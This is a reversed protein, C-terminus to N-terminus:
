PETSRFRCSKFGHLRTQYAGTQPFSIQSATRMYSAARCICSWIRRIDKKFQAQVGGKNTVLNDTAFGLVFGAWGDDQYLKQKYKFHFVTNSVSTKYSGLSYYSSNDATISGNAFTPVPTAWTALDWNATDALMETVDVVAYTPEEPETPTVKGTKEVTVSATNVSGFCFYGATNALKSDTYVENFWEAGDVKVIVRLQNAAIQCVSFSIDYARSLRTRTAMAWM